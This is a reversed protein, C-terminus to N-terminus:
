KPDGKIDNLISLPAWVWPEVHEPTPLTTRIAEVDLGFASAVEPLWATLLGNPGIPNELLTLRLGVRVLDPLDMGDLVEEFAPRKNFDYTVQEGPRVWWRTSSTEEGVLGLERAVAQARHAEKRAIHLVLLRIITGQNAPDAVLVALRRQLEAVLPQNTAAKLAFAAMAARLREKTAVQEPTPAAKPLLSLQKPPAPKAASM